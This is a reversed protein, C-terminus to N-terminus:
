KILKARNISGVKWTAIIIGGALTYINIAESPIAPDGTLDSPKVRQELLLSRQCPSSSLM